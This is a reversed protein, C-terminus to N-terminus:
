CWQSPKRATLQGPPELDLRNLCHGFDLIRPAGPLFELWGTAPTQLLVSSFPGTKGLVAM